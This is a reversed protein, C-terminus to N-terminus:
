RRSRTINEQFELRLATSMDAYQAKMEEVMAEYEDRAEERDEWYQIQHAQLEEIMTNVQEVKFNFTFSIKSVGRQM